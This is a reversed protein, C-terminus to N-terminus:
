SGRELKGKRDGRMVGIRGKGGALFVANGRKAKKVVHFSENSITMWGNETLIDVGSTGCAFAKCHKSQINIMEIGSRYGKVNFSKKAAKMMPFYATNASDIKDNIYDGGVVIIQNKDRAFSFAGASKKNLCFEPIPRYNWKNDASKHIFRSSNGGSVFAFENKGYCRLSTGSAAFVAENDLAIPTHSTDLFKWSEGGDHTEALVFHHHIPDGLVVGHKSDWFDLADLFMEPLTDKFVEKWSEGGDSTKLIYAPSGSSMMVANQADFAEIDRFDSNPYKELQRFEFSKGGDRSRAFTGRSGSVWITHDDVVSLGRFSTKSLSVGNGVIFHNSDILAISVQANANIFLFYFLIICLLALKKM